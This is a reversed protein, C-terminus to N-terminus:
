RYTDFGSIVRLSNRALTDFPKVRGQYVVPLRGLAHVDPEDPTAEAPTMRSGLWSAAGLVVVLPVLFRPELYWSTREMALLGNGDFTGPSLGAAEIEDVRAMEEQPKPQDDDSVADIMGRARRRQFRILVLSFQYAMGIAVIMCAVYPIMWGTNTVVQLGTVQAQPDVSSQYFTKGAFRLPNNMWIHVLRDTTGSDDLLRVDSSYNRATQTGIYKDDRVDVLHLSYPVYTRKFRLDIEYTKGAVIVDQPKLHQSFLWRGLSQGQKGKFTVEVSAADVSGGVDTGTGARVAEVSLFRGSGEFVKNPRLRNKPPASNRLFRDIEIEFPLDEHLIREGNLFRTEVGEETLPVVTVRDSGAASRDIIALEVARVDQEFNVTEGERISMQGEIASLGVLLESFMMLLVGSHLLVIGARRRFVMICGILLVGGALGGQVLQFLIRLSPWDQFLVNEQGSQMSGWLIVATTLACGVIIALVGNALRAGRVQVKFRVAHAALLNVVMAGGILWGGPFPFGLGERIDTLPELFTGMFFSKPFFVRFEIWAIDTRFYDRVVEWIDKHVQAMTGALVVFIAMAFLVVAIKLSALPRLLGVIALGLPYTTPLEDQRDTGSAAEDPLNDVTM